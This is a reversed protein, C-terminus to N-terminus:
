GFKYCLEPMMPETLCGMCFQHSFQPKIGLAKLTTKWSTDPARFCDLLIRGCLVFLFDSLPLTLGRLKIWNRKPVVCYTRNLFQSGYWASLSRSCNKPPFIFYTSMTMNSNPKLFGNWLPVTWKRHVRPHRHCVGRDPLLIARALVLFSRWHAESMPEPLLSPANLPCVPWGLPRHAQAWPQQAHRIVISLRRRCVFPPCSIAM